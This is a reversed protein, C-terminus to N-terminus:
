PESYGDQEIDQPLPPLPPTEYVPYEPTPPMAVVPGLTATPWPLPPTFPSGNNAIYYNM